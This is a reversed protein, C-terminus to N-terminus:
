FFIPAPIAPFLPIENFFPRKEPGRRRRREERHLVWDMDSESINQPFIEGGGGERHLVWALDRNSDPVAGVLIFM